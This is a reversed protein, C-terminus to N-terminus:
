EHAASRIAASLASKIVTHAKNEGSFDLLDGLPEWMGEDDNAKDSLAAASMGHSVNDALAIIAARAKRMYTVRQWSEAKEDWYGPGHDTDCIARAVAELPRM